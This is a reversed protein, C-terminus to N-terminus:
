YEIAETLKKRNQKLWEAKRGIMKLFDVGSSPGFYGTTAIPLIAESILAEIMLDILSNLKNDGFEILQRYGRIFGIMKDQDFYAPWDAPNPRGGVISFQLMGNALDTIPPAIRVSDFDLVAILKSGSFLMNGPHWDGHVLQEAWSDFGLSNVRVSSENYLTMLSEAIASLGTEAAGKKSRATKLCKRVRSSGHFSGKPLEGAWIFGTLQRHFNALQRGVDATAEASGDYRVGTVFKFCEYVYKNLELVTEDQGPIAVLTSVPFGNKLLHTQVAHAFAIRALINKRKNKRKLLFKGREAVVVVKPVNRQGGALPRVMKVEGADYRTLVEELEETEFGTTRGRKVDSM